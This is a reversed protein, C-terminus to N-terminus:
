LAVKEPFYVGNATIIIDYLRYRFSRPFLTLRGKDVAKIWRNSSFFRFIKGRIGAPKVVPQIFGEEVMWPHLSILQKHAESYQRQRKIYSACTIRDDHWAFAEHNYYIPIGMKFAKVALDFDEADKLRQDFGGLTEFLKKPISFNAATIFLNEKELPVGTDLKKLWKNSLSSKFVQIDTRSDHSIDVQAGTLISSPFKFHHDVHVQICSPDPLMDDDFFILLQGKAHRAGFNRVASRGKNEQVVVMWSYFLPEYIKLKEVTNDTSGDIAVILEFAKYTQTQLADLIAPLKHAGNYTPIVVSVKM